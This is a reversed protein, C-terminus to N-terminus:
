PKGNYISSKLHQYHNPFGAVTTRIYEKMEEYRKDALPLNKIIEEQFPGANQYQGFNYPLHNMGILISQWGDTFSYDAFNARYIQQIVPLDPITLRAFRLLVVLSDPIKMENMIDQWYPTDQRSTLAYHCVLFDRVGEYLDTVAKNFIGVDAQNVIGENGGLIHGLTEVQLQVIFLGTSELPEIFGSSLGVAVCNKVWTRTHKGVRMDIHNTEIGDMRKEGLFQRLELEAEDKTQYRSCYVYGAGMRNYLPIQWIWGSSVATCGTYAFMEKEKDEYPHRIAVAKNNFLYDYYEEFPEQMTKDMLLSKFGTCDIFLDGELDPGNARSLSHISGDENKNVGNVQDIIREVGCAQALKILYEGLLNADLHYAPGREVMSRLSKNQKCIEPTVFCYDFYTNRDSFEPQTLHKNHWFRNLPKGAVNPMPEFSYWFAPDETSYFDKFRIASKYTANCIPMWESEELGMTRLFNIIPPITSEGVGVTPIDSAEIVTIHMNKLRKSLFAAAMWGSSCGGVIVIKKIM